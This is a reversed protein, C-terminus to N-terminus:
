FEEDLPHPNLLVSPVQEYGEQSSGQARQRVIRLEGRLACTRSISECLGARARREDEDTIKRSDMNAVRYKDADPRSRPQRSDLASGREVGNM